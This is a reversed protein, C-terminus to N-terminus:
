YLLTTNACSSIARIDIDLELAWFPSVLPSQLSMCPKYGQLSHLSEVEEEVCLSWCM